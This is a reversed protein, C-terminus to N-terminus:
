CRKYWMEKKLFIRYSVKYSILYFLITVMFLVVPLFLEIFKLIGSMEFNVKELLFGIGGALLAFLTVVVFMYIRGKEAGFKYICPIQISIVLGIGLLAGFSMSILNSINPMKGNVFLLVFITGIIGVVVGIITSLFTLIYKERVLDKKDLPLSLLYNEAKAQEDYHFSAISFMGFGLTMMIVLMSSTESVDESSFASLLFIVIYIILTKKYSKLQLLDKMILGKIAKM